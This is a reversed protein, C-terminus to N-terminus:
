TVSRTWQSRCYDTNIQDSYITVSLYLNCDFTVANRHLLAHINHPGEFPTKTALVLLLSWYFKSASNNYLCCLLLLLLLLLVLFFHYLIFNVSGDVVAVVVVVVVKKRSSGLLICKLTWFNFCYFETYVCEHVFKGSM